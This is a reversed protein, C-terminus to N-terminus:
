NGSAKQVASQFPGSIGQIVQNVWGGYPKPLTAQAWSGLGTAGAAVGASLDPSDQHTIANSGFAATGNVFANYGNAAIKGGTSLGAITEDGITFPYTVGGVIGAIYSKTFNPPDKSLGTMYSVADGEYDFAGAVGAAALAEPGLVAVGALPGGDLAMTQMNSLAQDANTGQAQMGAQFVDMNCQQLGGACAAMGANGFPNAIL